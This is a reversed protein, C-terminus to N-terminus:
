KKYQEPLWDKPDSKKTQISQTSKNKNLYYYSITGILVVIMLQISLFQPNFISMLPEEISLLTPNAAVSKPEADVDEDEARTSDQKIIEAATENTVHVIPFLYYLGPELNIVIKQRFNLTTNPTAYLNEMEGFSIKTILEGSPYALINGSVGMVSIDSEENNTLTYNLMVIEDQDFSLPESISEPMEKDEINYNIDLGISPTPINSPQQQDDDAAVIGNDNNDLQNLNVGQGLVWNATITTLLAIGGLRM